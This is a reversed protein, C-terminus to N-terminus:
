WRSGVVERRGGGEERRGRGEEKREGGEERRRRRERRSVMMIMNTNYSGPCAHWKYKNYYIVDYSANKAYKKAKLLAKIICSYVIYHRIM